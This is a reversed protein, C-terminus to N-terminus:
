GAIQTESVGADQQVISSFEVQMRRPMVIGHGREITSQSRLAVGRDLSRSNHIHPTLTAGSDRDIISV